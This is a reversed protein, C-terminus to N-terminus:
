NQITKENQSKHFQELEKELYIVYHLLWRIHNIYGDEKNYGLDHAINAVDKLTTELTSFREPNNKYLDVIKRQRKNLIM